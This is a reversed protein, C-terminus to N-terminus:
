CRRCEKRSVVARSSERKLLSLALIAILVANRVPLNSAWYQTEVYGTLRGFCGCSPAFGFQRQAAYALTFVALMLCLLIRSEIMRVRIFWMCALTIEISPVLISIPIVLEKPILTWEQLASQFEGLDLLKLVGAIAISATAIVALMQILRSLM